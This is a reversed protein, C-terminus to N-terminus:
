SWFVPANFIHYLIVKLPHIYPTYSINIFTMDISPDRGGFEFIGFDLAHFVRAGFM